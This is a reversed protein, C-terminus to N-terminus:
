PAKLPCRLSKDKTRAGYTITYVEEEKGNSIAEVMMGDEDNMYRAWNEPHAEPLRPYRLKDLHLDQILMKGRPRVDMRLIMDSAVNWREVASSKCPGSSYLIDVTETETEYVYTLARSTKPKGLLREVDIRSSRLPVLGRWSNPPLVGEQNSSPQNQTGGSQITLASQFNSQDTNPVKTHDITITRRFTYGNGQPPPPAILVTPSYRIVSHENSQQIVAITVTGVLLTLIGTVLLSWRRPAIM